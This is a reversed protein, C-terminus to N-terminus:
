VTHLAKKMRTGFLFNVALAKLKDLDVVECRDLLLYFEYINTWDADMSGLLTAYQSRAVSPSSSEVLCHLVTM